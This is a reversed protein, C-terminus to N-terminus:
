YNLSGAKLYICCLYLFFDRRPESLLTVGHKIPHSPISLQIIQPSETHSKVSKM